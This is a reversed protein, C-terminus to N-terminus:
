PPLPTSWATRFRLCTRAGSDLPSSARKWRPMSWLIISFSPVGDFSCRPALAIRPTEIATAFAAAADAPSSRKWYRPPTAAQVSGTGM